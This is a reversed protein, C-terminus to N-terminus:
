LCTEGKERKVQQKKNKKDERAKSNAGLYSINRGRSRGRGLILVRKKEHIRSQSLGQQQGGERKKRGKRWKGAHSPRVQGGEREGRGGGEGAREGWVQLVKM